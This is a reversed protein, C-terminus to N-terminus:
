SDKTKPKHSQSSPFCLAEQSAPLPKVSKKFNRPLPHQSTKSLSDASIGDNMQGKSRENRRGLWPWSWTRFRPMPYTRTVKEWAKGRPVEHNAQGRGNKMSNGTGPIGKRVKSGQSLGVYEACWFASTKRVCGPTYLGERVGRRPCTRQAGRKSGTM